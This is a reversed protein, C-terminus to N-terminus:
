GENGTPEPQQAAALTSDPFVTPYWTEETLADDLVPRLILRIGSGEAYNIQLAQEPTVALTVSGYESAAANETSEIVKKGVALVQLNEVILFSVPHEQDYEANLMTVVLDVYDGKSINGAIGSVENVALTIARYGPELVYSLRGKGAEGRPEVRTTLLQENVEVPLQTIGGVVEDLKRAALQHIAEVPWEALTVMDATIETNAPIFRTAIVVNGENVIAQELASKKLSDAFYYVTLGVVIAMIFSLLYIKKM